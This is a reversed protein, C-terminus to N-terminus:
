LRSARLFIYSCYVLFWGSLMARMISTCLLELSARFVYKLYYDHYIPQHCLFTKSNSRNCLTKVVFYFILAFYQSWVGRQGDEKKTLVLQEIACFTRRTNNLILHNLLSDLDLLCNETNLWPLFVKM